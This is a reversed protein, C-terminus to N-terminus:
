LPMRMVEQYAAVVRDRVAVATQLALEAKAVALVVDTAGAKGTLAQTSATDATHGQHVAGEVAQKLVDGFSPGAAGPASGPAAAPAPAAPATAAGVVAGAARYASVVAPALLFPAVM